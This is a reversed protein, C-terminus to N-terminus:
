SLEEKIAQMGRNIGEYRNENKKQQVVCRLNLYM